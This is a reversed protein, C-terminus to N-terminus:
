TLNRREAGRRATMRQNRKAAQKTSDHLNRLSPTVVTELNARTAGETPLIRTLKHKLVTKKM